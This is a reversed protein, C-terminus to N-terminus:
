AGDTPRASKGPFVVLRTMGFNVIFSMGIPVIAALGVPLYRVALLFSAVEVVLGLLGSAVFRGYTALSLRRGSEAAFTTLTNLVYSNSVAVVWGLFKAAGLATDSTALGLPTLVLLTVGVTIAYNVVGNLAGIVAFSAMKPAERRLMQFLGGGTGTTRSDNMM